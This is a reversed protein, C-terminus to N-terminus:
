SLKNLNLNLNKKEIYNMIDKTIDIRSSIFDYTFEIVEGKYKFFAYTKNDLLDCYRGIFYDNEKSVFDKYDNLANKDFAEISTSEFIYDGNKYIKNNTEKFAREKNELDTPIFFLKFLENVDDNFGLENLLKKDNEKFRSSKTFLTDSLSAYYIQRLQEENFEYSNKFLDYIFLATSCYEGLIPNKLVGSDFHHDIVGLVLSSDIVSQIPDNHDVLFYRYNSIEDKKIIIPNYELCSETVGKEFPNMTEGELIAYEANTGYSKFIESLIKSSVITDTDPNKHGIVFVQEYKKLEDFNM